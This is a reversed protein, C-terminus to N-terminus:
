AAGFSLALSQSFLIACLFGTLALSIGLLKTLLAAPPILFM